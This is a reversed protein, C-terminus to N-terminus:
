TLGWNRPLAAVILMRIHHPLGRGVQELAMMLGLNHRVGRRFAPPFFQHVDLDYPSWQISSEILHLTANCVLAAWSCTAEDSTALTLARVNHQQYQVTVAPDEGSHLLERMIGEQRMIADVMLRTLHPWVELLEMTATHNFHKSIKLPTWGHVALDMPVGAALPHKMVETNNRKCATRLSTYGNDMALDASAGAGLPLAVVGPSNTQSAILLPIIGTRTALDVSAAAGLLLAVVGPNNKQSAIYLPTFGDDTAMDISAGAGLLM